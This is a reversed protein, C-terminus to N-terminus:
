ARLDEFVEGVPSRDEERVEREGLRKYTSHVTTETIGYMNVLASDAHRELWGRVLGPELPEGAFVVARVRTEGSEPEVVPWLQRFASPTQSLITVVERKVLGWLAEPSRVEMRSALVVRGGYLWAGWMEWVSVDFAYNHSMSWV